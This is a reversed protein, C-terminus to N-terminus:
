RADRDEKGEPVFPQPAVYRTLKTESLTLSFPAEWVAPAKDFMQTRRREYCLKQVDVESVLLGGDFRREALM